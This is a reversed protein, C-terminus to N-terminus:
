ADLEKLREIMQEFKWTGRGIMTAIRAKATMVDSPLILGLMASAHAIDPWCDWSVSRGKLLYVSAGAIVIEEAGVERCSDKSNLM